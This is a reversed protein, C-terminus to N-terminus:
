NLRAWTWFYTKNSFGEIRSADPGDLDLREECVQFLRHNKKKWQKESGTSPLPFSFSADMHSLSM